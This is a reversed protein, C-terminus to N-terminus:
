VKKSKSPSKSSKSKSPSKSSKSKSPSKSSKSKSPSPSLIDKLDPLSSELARELFPTMNSYYLQTSSVSINKLLKPQKAKKAQPSRSSPRNSPSVKNKM